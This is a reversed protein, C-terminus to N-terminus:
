AEDDDPDYLSGDDDSDEAEDEEDVEEPHEEEDEEGESMDLDVEDLDEIVFNGSVGGALPTRSGDPFDGTPAAPTPLLGPVYRGDILHASFITEVPFTNQQLVIAALRVAQDQSHGAETISDRNISNSISLQTIKLDALIQLFGDFTLGLTGTVGANFLQFKDLDPKDRTLGVADVSGVLLNSLTLVRLSGPLCQLNVLDPQLIVQADHFGTMSEEAYLELVELNLCRGIPTVDFPPGHGIPGGQRRSRLSLQVNVLTEFSTSLPRLADAPSLRHFFSNLSRLRGQGNILDQFITMSPHGPILCAVRVSELNM